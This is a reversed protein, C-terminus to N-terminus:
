KRRITKIFISFDSIDVKGDNNFDVSGHRSAKPDNWLSLFISWDRIDIKEDGNLDAQTVLLHSVVFTRSISFDSTLNELTNVQRTRITHPGFDLAGTPVAFKYSGDAGTVMDKILIGDLELNITNGPAAYGSIIVSNGRTVQGQALTITPSLFINKELLSDSITNVFFLKTQSVHGDKDKAVIGFSHLAQLIGVFSIDFSGDAGTTYDQGVVTEINLQKDIVSIKGGPFAKGSFTITTPKSPGPNSAAAPAPAAPTPVLENNASFNDIIFGKGLNAPAATGAVRFMTSDVPAPIGGAWDRYYDEWTTGTHILTGDLYIKVVDNGPGDIFQITTKITHPVTRDLATAIPTLVFDMIAHQYDDFNLQLGSPTDAMQLWTMRSPDGRDASAVVSLGPQESGPQASAFDWQSEFYPQRTGGSYTSTSASTEGSENALSKSFTQDNFSGCTIANSIRLSKTGFSSYGYSNSVVAVDYLPCVSSGHGSTWGDQNQLDGLSFTEFDGGSPPPIVSFTQTNSTGGGPTTNFVTIPFNGSTALDSSPIVASLQSSSAFTTTLSSGNWQIVSSPFFNTGNVTLTFASDTTRKSIPSISVTSPVTFPLEFDYTTDVNNIGLSFADVMGVFGGTWGGGAKFQIAGTNAGASRIGINPFDALVESWTCPNNITCLANGPAGTFWWNGTGANDLPNWTQWVGTSVTHTYYPEYVLRGQWSTNADLVNTDIDFQLSPALASSGFERYTSYSLSTIADLRTGVFSYTGFIGGGTSNITIQFGGGGLPPIGTAYVFSGTSTATEQAFWWGNLNDPTVVIANVAHAENLSFLFTTVVFVISLFRSIIKPTKAFM